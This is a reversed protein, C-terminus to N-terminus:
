DDGATVNDGGTMRAYRKVMEERKAEKETQKKDLSKALDGWVRSWTQGPKLYSEAERLAAVGSPLMFADVKDQTGNANGNAVVAAALEAYSHKALTFKLKLDSRLASDELIAPNSTAAFPKLSEQYDTAAHKLHRVLHAFIESVGLASTNYNAAEGHKSATRAAVMEAESRGEEESSDSEGGEEEEEEAVEPPFQKHKPAPSPSPSPVPLVLEAIEAADQELAASNPCQPAKVEAVSEAPATEPGPALGLRRTQDTMPEQGALEAFPGNAHPPLGDPFSIDVLVNRRQVAEEDELLPWESNLVLPTGGIDVTITETVAKAEVKKDYKVLSVAAAPTGDEKITELTSRMKLQTLKNIIDGDMTVGHLEAMMSGSDASPTSNSNTVVLETEGNITVKVRSFTGKDGTSAYLTLEDDETTNWSLLKVLGDQPGLALTAPQEQAQQAAETPAASDSGEYQELHVALKALRRM